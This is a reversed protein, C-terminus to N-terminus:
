SAGGFLKRVRAALAAQEEIHALEAQAEAILHSYNLPRLYALWHWLRVAELPIVQSTTM